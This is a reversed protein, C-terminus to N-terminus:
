GNKGDEIYQKFQYDPMRLSSGQLIPALYKKAQRMTELHALGQHTSQMGRVLAEYTEANREKLGTLNIYKHGQSLDRKTM